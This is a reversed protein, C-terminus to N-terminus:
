LEPFAPYRRDPHLGGMEGTLKGAAKNERIVQALLGTMM